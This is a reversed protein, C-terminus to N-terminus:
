GVDVDVGIDGDDVDVDIGGDSQRTESKNLSGAWDNKVPFMM